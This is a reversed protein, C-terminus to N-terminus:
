VGPFFASNASMGTFAINSSSLSRLERTLSIRISEELAQENKKEQKKLMVEVFGSGLVAGVVIFLPTLTVVGFVAPKPVTLEYWSNHIFHDGQLM